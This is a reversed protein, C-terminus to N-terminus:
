LLGEKLNIEFVGFGTVRATIPNVIDYNLIL